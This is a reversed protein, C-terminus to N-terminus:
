RHTRSRIAGLCGFWAIFGGATRWSLVAPLCHTGGAVVGPPSVGTALFSTGGEKKGSSALARAPLAVLSVAALSVLWVPGNRLMGAGMLATMAVAAAALGAAFLIIAILIRM